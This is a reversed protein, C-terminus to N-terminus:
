ASQLREQLGSILAAVTQTSDMSDVRARELERAIWLWAAGGESSREAEGEAWDLLAARFGEFAEPSTGAKLLLEAAPGSERRSLSKLARATMGAVQVADPHSLRLAAGPRGHALQMAAPQVEAGSLEITARVQDQNLGAVRLRRCRSRITALLPREGHYLMLLVCNAPPEELTKLLANAGNTNLDDLADVVCVRRGGLAPRLNLFNVLEERVEDVKIFLPMTGKEDPTRALYRFDPHAGALLKAAVPDDSRVDARAEGEPRAGLLVASLRRALISKGIGSPGEILWAHHLKGSAMSALFSAEAAEHGVLSWALEGM